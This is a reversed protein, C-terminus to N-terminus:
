RSIPNFPRCLMKNKSIDPASEVTWSFGLSHNIRVGTRVLIRMLDGLNAVEPRTSADHALSTPLTPEFTRLVFQIRLSRSSKPSTIKKASQGPTDQSQPVSFRGFAQTKAPLCMFCKGDQPSQSVWINHHDKLNPM